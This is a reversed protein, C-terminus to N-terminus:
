GELEDMLTKQRHCGPSFWIRERDRNANDANRNAYGGQARWAVVDWGKAELAEYGDGEYGCVAIRYGRLNGREICYTLM